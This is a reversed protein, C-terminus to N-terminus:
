IAIVDMILLEYLCAYQLRDIAIHSLTIQVIATDTTPYPQSLHSGVRYYNVRPM